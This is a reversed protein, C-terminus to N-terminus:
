KKFDFYLQMMEGEMQEKRHRERAEKYLYFCLYVDLPARYIQCSCDLDTVVMFFRM